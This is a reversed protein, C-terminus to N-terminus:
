SLKAALEHVIAASDKRVDIVLANTPEELAEFQSALLDPNMFHNSRTALRSKILEFSGKLYVLSVRQDKMLIRRYSEKLASCALVINESAALWQDISAALATLWQLRDEDTLPRGSQMKAKNAPSHYDDADAFRWGLAEGLGRAVTSKGSGSVGMIITVRGSLSAGTHRPAPWIM